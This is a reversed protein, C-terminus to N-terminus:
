RALPGEVNGLGCSKAVANQVSVLLNNAWSREVAKRSVKIRHEPDLVRGQKLLRVTELGILVPWACALRVRMQSRPLANTYAWGAKLHEEARRLWQNYIPRMAPEVVSSVLQEPRLGVAATSGQCTVDEQALDKPLDRLINVLQLGKGFRIGNEILWGDDLSANPFLHARCMKTWFAGVCGAVRYTYDDLEAESGLALVNTKSAEGFRQLDLEQGSIITDLVERILKRDAEDFTNLLGM